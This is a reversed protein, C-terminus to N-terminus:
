RRFAYGAYNLATPEIPQPTSGCWEGSGTTFEVRVADPQTHNDALTDLPGLTPRLHGREATVDIRGLATSGRGPQVRPRRGGGGDGFARREGLADHNRAPMRALPPYCTLAM